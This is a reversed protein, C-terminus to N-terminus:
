DEVGYLEFIPRDGAYHVSSSLMEPAFRETFDVLSSMTERSDVRTREIEKGTLERLTRMVLPLDEHVRDPATARRTREQVSAWLKALFDMDALLLEEPASEAATRVIYGDGNRAAALAPDDEGNPDAQNAGSRRRVLDAILDRLRSREGEDEIRQSIGITGAGPMFVLYCSPISVHTTIRAGKTGLPDKIVQM